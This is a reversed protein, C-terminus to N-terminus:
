TDDEDMDVDDVNEADGSPATSHEDSGGPTETEGMEVDRFKAKKM